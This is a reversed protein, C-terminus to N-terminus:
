DPNEALYQQYQDWCAQAIQDHKEEARKKEQTSIHTSFYSPPNAAPENDMHIRELEQAINFIQDQPDHIHIFNHIAALAAPIRAQIKMSYEPATRMVHFRRKLVGF